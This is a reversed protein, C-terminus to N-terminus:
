AYCWIVNGLSKKFNHNIKSNIYKYKIYGWEPLNGDVSGCVGALAFM